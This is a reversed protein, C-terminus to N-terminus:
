VNANGFRYRYAFYTYLPTIIVSVVLSGLALLVLTTLTTTLDHLNITQM